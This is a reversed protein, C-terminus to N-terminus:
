AKALNWLNGTALEKLMDALPLVHIGDETKQRSDGTYLLIRTQLGSLDAIARLGKFHGNHIQRSSKVEIALFHRERELLFDVELQDAETPSWYSWSDFLQRHQQYAYLVSAIWGELLAGREEQAVPGHHNKMARVVGPDIWYLKPHTRERVRLRAEYAPLTFTMLTDELVELYGQVTSRSVGADRSISSTNVVQAHCLAAIPLFRAFGSLNRVLAEAKIEEKLYMQAYAELAEDRDEQNWIVAISGYRLVTELDFDAGLEEPLLPFMMRRLARGALLNVGSRKLKRASSGSLAFIMKKQEIFRHVENLLDPMRQIEDVVVRSGKPLADLERGFLGSDRLYDQYRREELLDFTADAKFYNRLWTSKGVGRPGFLFFGQKPSRIIREYLM